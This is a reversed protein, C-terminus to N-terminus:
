DRPALGNRLADEIPPANYEGVNEYGQGAGGGASVLKQRVNPDIGLRWIKLDRINNETRVAVQSDYVACNKITVLAGGYEETGGRVRFCIENDRFMCNEVDVQVHNKLNLAAMNSIQGPQNWGALICNRITMQSRVNAIAQKTDVANEGPREGRKFGAADADLPGTWLTCNEIQVEGWPGRGPDFQIADGSTLGIDCNRITL